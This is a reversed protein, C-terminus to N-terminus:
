LDMCARSITSRTVSTTAWRISRDQSTTMSTVIHGSSGTGRDKVTPSRLSTMATRRGSGPSAPTLNHKVLQLGNDINLSDRILISATIEKIAM